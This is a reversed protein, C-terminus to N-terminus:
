SFGTADASAAAIHHDLPSAFPMRTELTNKM